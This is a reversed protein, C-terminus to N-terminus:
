SWKECPKLYRQIIRNPITDLLDNFRLQDSLSGVELGASELLDRADRSTFWRLHTRDFLGREIRPFTGNLFILHLSSIHRINPISVICTGEPRLYKVAQALLHWPDILHELVDAFIMCGFVKESFHAGWTFHYLDGQIARTLKSAAEQCFAKDLEIGEIMRSPVMARLAADLPRNSCGVDHIQLDNTPVHVLIDPRITTYASIASFSHSQNM